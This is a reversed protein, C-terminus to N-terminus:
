FTGHNSGFITLGSGGEDYIRDFETPPLITLDGYAQYLQNNSETKIYPLTQTTSLSPLPLLFPEGLAPGLLGSRALGHWPLYTTPGSTFCPNDTQICPQTQTASLTPLPELFTEGTATWNHFSAILSPNSRLHPAPARFGSGALSHGPSYTTPGSTLCPNKPRVLASAPIQLIKVSSSNQQSGNTRPSLAVSDSIYTSPPIPLQADILNFSQSETQPEDQHTCEETVNERSEHSGPPRSTGTGKRRVKENVKRKSILKKRVSTSTTANQNESELWSPPKQVRRPLRRGSNNPRHPSQKVLNSWFDCPTNDILYEEVSSNEKTHPETEGFLLISGSYLGNQMQVNSIISCNTPGTKVRTNRLLSSLERVVNDIFSLPRSDTCSQLKTFLYSAGWALLKHCVSSTLYCTDLTTDQKSLILAKEEITFVSYLRFVNLRECPSDITIRKLAKIDFSPNGVGNFLIVVDVRSLRISSHCAAYDFLCIFRDSDESNFMKLSEKKEMYASNSLIKGPIYVYSNKGFRQHVLDDLFHGTSIKESNVASQFLVVVRLGCQKIELLLKNLLQMKGSVNIEADLPDILSAEGSSNRLTPDVLYPHDCCKQIQTLIDHLSSNRSFSSLAELNSTLISCYQEMQMSSLHVPVWYEKFDLTRFKCEFAIFPSLREKLTNSKDQMEMDADMNIKEYECDLLSLINRYSQCTDMSEGSVTLLKMDAMLTQFKKFHRSLMPRQCEDIVVLEWKIHDLMEMDEVIADPSSLIVQYKICANERYFKTDRIAARIDKNGKYTVVNISKSWKSFEIKWLSLVSSSAIILIPNKMNDVLSSVLFVVKVIRDQSDFFVANEGRNRYERLKYVYPLVHDHMETSVECQFDDLRRRSTAHANIDDKVQQAVIQFMRKYYHSNLKKRKVFNKVNTDDRKQSMTTEGRRKGEMLASINEGKEAMSISSYSELPTKTM